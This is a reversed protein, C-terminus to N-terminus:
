ALPDTLVLQPGVSTRRMMINGDHIDLHRSGRTRGSRQAESIFVMADHLDDDKINKVDDKRICQEIYNSLSLLLAEKKSTYNDEEVPVENFAKDVMAELEEESASRINYLKEMNLIYFFLGDKDRYIKVKYIKPLYPNGQLRQERLITTLYRFYGDEKLDRIPKSVKTIEGPANDREIATSYAGSGLVKVLKNKHPETKEGTIKDYSQDHDRYGQSVKSAPTKVRNYTVKPQFLELIKM